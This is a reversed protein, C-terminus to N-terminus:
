PATLKYFRYGFAPLEVRWPSQREVTGGGDLGTMTAFDVGSLDVEVAQPEPQFNMVVLIRESRDRAIRLFAYHKDDAATPLAMRGGLQHMAPHEQKIKLVRSHEADPSAPSRGEGFVVMDGVAAVLAVALSTKRGDEFRPPYYYLTGDAEVVRDHYDRLVRELPRPDSTDIAKQITNNDKEWWIGLGYDQVCTWGGETIWPVPDEHFGGAGEPQSFMKGYSAIVDTMYRRNLRWNCGVYWNVADIIMGDIGTDMWFRIVREAEQQFEPSAWNYQPLRVPKGALDTGGWKTWYYKGARESFQWFESKVPDYRPGHDPRVFFYRDLKGYSGPPPADPTDSWIFFNTERTKKGVRIDDCAKLFDVAEVSSYGLNDFTTIRMGKQHVLHVLRRFDAMTGAEPNLRYRNIADLGGYSNGGEHSAFIEVADVGAARLEDLRKSAAASDLPFARDRGRRDTLSVRIIAATSEWWNGSAPQAKRNPSQAFSTGPFFPAAGLAAFVTRRTM